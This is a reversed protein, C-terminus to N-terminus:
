FCGQRAVTEQVRVRTCVHACVFVSCLVGVVVCMCVCVCVHVGPDIVWLAAEDTERDITQIRIQCRRPEILCISSVTVLGSSSPFLHM